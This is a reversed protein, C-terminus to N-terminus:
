RAGSTIIPKGYSIAISIHDSPQIRPLAMEKKLLVKLFRNKLWGLGIKIKEM